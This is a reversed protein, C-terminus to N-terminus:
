LLTVLSLFIYNLTWVIHKGWSTQVGLMCFLGDKLTITTYAPTYFALHIQFYIASKFFKNKVFPELQHLFFAKKKCVNALM